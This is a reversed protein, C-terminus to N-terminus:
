YLQTFFSPFALIVLMLRRIKTKSPKVDFHLFPFTHGHHLYKLALAVDSAIKVRQVLDRVYIDSHLWKELSGNAMYELILAKFDQNTCCGIVQVLNRHRISSLIETETDFSKTAGGSELHFVKVAVNLGDSLTAKFVSGFSGQELEIYSIRRWFVNDLSIHDITSQKHRRILM